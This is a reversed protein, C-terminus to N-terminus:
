KKPVIRIPAGFRRYQDARCASVLRNEWFTANPCGDCSDQEGTEMIDVPQVVSITQLQLKAFLLSPKKFITRFYNGAIKRVCKDFLGLLLASRGSSSVSPKSFALYRNRFAHYGNQIIEKSRAGLYGFTYKGTGIRTGIVWKLSHPNITGGLYACFGFDPLVRKIQSYIDFTMLHKYQEKTVYPTSSFDVIKDGVYYHYPANHDFMRVCIFTMIHVRDVVKITWKVIDPVSELTDPFVTTNFACALGGEEYLMDAYYARLENLEKESKGMWGPRGQHSDIHLTIGWTGARKLEHVMTCDLDVANTVIIPKVGMKRVLYVIDLIKPHTLPEGGAILMADCRRLRLMVNLEHEIQELTKESQAENEVFCADCKINCKRTPEMWTMANDSATWPLRFLQHPDPPLIGECKETETNKSNLTSKSEM